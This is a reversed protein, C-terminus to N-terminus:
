IFEFKDGIAMEKEKVGIIKQYKPDIESFHHLILDVLAKGDILAIPKKGEEESEEIASNTFSSLTIVCGHEDPSLAGRIQLVVKNGVSGKIRKVQVVLNIQAVGEANLNGTVDIGKDGVYRTEAAEFGIVNLLHTIFEEFERGDLEYLRNIVADYINDFYESKGEYKKGRIISRLEERHDSISFVTMLSGLSFKLKTSCVDRPFEKYPSIKRRHAYKFSDEEYYYGGTVEVVIFTKGFPNPVLVIDGEKIEKYFRWLQGARQTGSTKGWIKVADTKLADLSDYEDLSKEIETFGLAIYNYRKDVVRQIHKGGKGMRVVWYNVSYKEVSEEKPPEFQVILDYDKKEIKRCGGQFYAGWAEKNEIFDLDDILYAINKPQDWTEVNKLGIIYIDPDSFHKVLVKNREPKSAIDATGIFKQGEGGALYFIVKDGEKIDKRYSTKKGFGWLKKDMLYDFTGIATKKDSYKTRDAVVFIYYNMINM